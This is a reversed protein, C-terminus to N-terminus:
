SSASDPCRKHLTYTWTIADVRAPCVHLKSFRLPIGRFFFESATEERFAPAKQDCTSDLIEGTYVKLNGFCKQTAARVKRSVLQAHSAKKLQSHALVLPFLQQAFSQVPSVNRKLEKKAEKKRREMERLSGNHLPWKKRRHVISHLILFIKLKMKGVRLSTHLLCEVQLFVFSNNSSSHHNALNDKQQFHKSCTFVKFQLASTCSMMCLTHVSNM